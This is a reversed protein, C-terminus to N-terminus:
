TRRRARQEGRFIRGPGASLLAFGIREAENCWPVATSFRPEAPPEAGEIGPNRTRKDPHCRAAELAESRLLQRNQPFRLLATVARRDRSPRLAHPRVVHM